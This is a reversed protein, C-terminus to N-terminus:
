QEIRRYLWYSGLLIIYSCVFLGLTYALWKCIHLSNDVSVSMLLLFIGIIFLVGSTIKIMIHKIGM